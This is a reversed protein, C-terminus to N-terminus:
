SGVDATSTVSSANAATRRQQQAGPAGCCVVATAHPPRIIPCVSLHVSLCVVSVIRDTDIVVSFLLFKVVAWMLLSCHWYSIPLM